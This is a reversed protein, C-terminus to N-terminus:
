VCQFCDCVTAHVISLTSNSCFADLNMLRRERDAPPKGKKKGFSEVSARATDKMRKLLDDARWSELETSLADLIPQKSQQASIWEAEAAM